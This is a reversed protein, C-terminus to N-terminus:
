WGALELPSSTHPVELASSTLPVELSHWGGESWGQQLGLPAPLEEHPTLLPLLLDRWQWAPCPTGVQPTGALGWFSSCRM